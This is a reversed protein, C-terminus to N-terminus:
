RVSSGRGALAGASEAALAKRGAPLLAATAAVAAMLCGAALYGTALGFESVLPQVVLPSCFQGLFSCLVGIGIARGKIRAPTIALLWANLNTIAFALGAGMLVLATLVVSYSGALGLLVNAAAILLFAVVLIQRYNLHRAIRKYQTSTLAWVLGVLSLLAGAQASGSGSFSRLYFPLNVPVMFYVVMNLFLLVYVVAMVGFPAREDAAEGQAPGGAAAAEPERLLLVVGPVLLFGVAYILFPWRWGQLALLGGLFVFVVNGLAMFLSQRGMSIGIQGRSTYDAILATACTAVGSVAVGLLLRSLLIASLSSLVAGACGAVGYLLLAVVFLRKRGFRDVILGMVPACLGASLAPVTLSLRVLFPGDPTGAFADGMRPLGAAIATTGIITISSAIMLTLDRLKTRYDM